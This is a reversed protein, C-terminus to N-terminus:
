SGKFQPDRKEMFANVAEMLDNSILFSSNWQAVYDLAEEVTRGETAAMVKKVGQTVLPSNAAITHALEETAEHLTEYDEFVENVLGKEKAWHSNFDAGTFAMEKTVSEGVIAPLRQLAGTDAVLGMRTERVSFVADAAALRIDTATILDVGAGLCYGHIAALVPKPSNALCSATEQMTLITQYLSMNAVAQSDGAPALAALLNVDIGVSFAPGRAALVIVRVTEDADLDAMAEPIDRWIDESLANRKDPRNLWLTAVHSDREIELHQYGM